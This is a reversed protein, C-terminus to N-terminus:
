DLSACDGQNNSQRIRPIGTRETVASKSKHPRGSPRGSSAWYHESMSPGIDVAYGYCGRLM